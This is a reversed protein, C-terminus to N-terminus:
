TPNMRRRDSSAAPSSCSDREVDASGVALARDAIRQRLVQLVVEAPEPDVTVGHGHDRLDLDGAVVRRERARGLRDAREHVFRRRDPAAVLVAPRYALVGAAAPPPDDGRGLRDADDLLIRDLGQDLVAEDDHRDAAAPDRDDGVLVSSEPTATISLSRAQEQERGADARTEEQDRSRDLVDREVEPCGVLTTDVPHREGLRPLVEGLAHVEGLLM